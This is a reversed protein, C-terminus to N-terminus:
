FTASMNCLNKKFFVRQSSTFMDSYAFDCICEMASNSVPPVLDGFGNDEEEFDWDEDLEGQGSSPHAPEDSNEIDSGSM